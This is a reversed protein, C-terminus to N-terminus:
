ANRLLKKFWGESVYGLAGWYEMAQGAKCLQIKSFLKKNDNVKNSVRAVMNSGYTCKNDELEQLRKIMTKDIICGYGLDDRTFVLKISKNGRRINFIWHIGNIYWDNKCADLLICLGIGNVKCKEGIYVDGIVPLYGCKGVGVVGGMTEVKVDTDHVNLVMSADGTFCMNALSDVYWRREDDKVMASRYNFYKLMDFQMFNTSFSTLHDM